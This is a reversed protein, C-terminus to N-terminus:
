LAKIEGTEVVEVPVGEITRPIQERLTQLNRSVSVIIAPNGGSALGIGIAAVGDLAMWAGEYARKLQRIKEMDNAM